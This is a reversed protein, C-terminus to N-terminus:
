AASRLSGIFYWGVNAIAASRSTLIGGAVPACSEADAAGATVCIQRAGAVTSATGLPTSGSAATRSANVLKRVPGVSETCGNFARNCDCTRCSAFSAPEQQERLDLVLPLGSAAPDEALHDATGHL